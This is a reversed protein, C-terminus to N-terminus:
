VKPLKYGNHYEKMLFQKNIDKDSFLKKEADWQLKQGTQYAINGMQAV